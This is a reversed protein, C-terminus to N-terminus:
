RTKNESLWQDLNELGATFGERFGMEIIKELDKLDDFQMKVKVTTTDGNSIFTNDWKNRPLTKNVNGKEDCFADMVSFSSKPKISLYDARAWHKEGGPGVMAYLWHGGERFDQRKTESKWPKPAWWQDLIKHDTWASWVLDRQANFDRTVHIQKAEKDVQFDMM